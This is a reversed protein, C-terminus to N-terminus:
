QSERDRGTERYFTATNESFTVSLGEQSIVLTPEQLSTKLLRLMLWMVVMFGPFVYTVWRLWLPLVPAAFGWNVALGITLPIMVLTIYYFFRVDRILKEPPRIVFQENEGV